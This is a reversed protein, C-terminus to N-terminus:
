FAIDGILLFFHVWPFDSITFLLKFLYTKYSNKKLYDRLSIFYM